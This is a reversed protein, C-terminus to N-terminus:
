PGTGLGLGSPPPSHIIGATGIHCVRASPATPVVPPALQVPWGEELRGVCANKSIVRYVHEAKWGRWVASPPVCGCAGREEQHAGAARTSRGRGGVGRRGAGGAGRGAGVAVEELHEPYDSLGMAVAEDLAYEFDTGPVPARYDCSLSM